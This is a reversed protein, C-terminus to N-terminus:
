ARGSEALGPLSRHSRLQPQPHHGGDHTGGRDPHFIRALARKAELARDLDLDAALDFGNERFYTLAEEVEGPYEPRTAKPALGKRERRLAKAKEKFQEARERQADNRKPAAAAKEVASADTKANLFDAERSDLKLLTAWIHKCLHGKKFPPCTCEASFSTSTVDETNLAVRPAGSAKITARVTTDSASGLNVLDRNFLDEGRTRDEPKFCAELEPTIPM